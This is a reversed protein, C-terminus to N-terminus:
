KPGKLAADPGNSRKDWHSRTFFLWFVSFIAKKLFSETFYKLFAIFDSM